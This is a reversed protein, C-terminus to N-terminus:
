KVIKSLPFTFKIGMYIGIRYLFPFFTGTIVYNATITFHLFLGTNKYYYNKQSYSRKSLSIRINLIYRSM